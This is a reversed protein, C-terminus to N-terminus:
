AKRSESLESACGCFRLRGFFIRRLIAEDYKNVTVSFFAPRRGWGVPFFRLQTAKERECDTGGSMEQGKRGKAYPKKGKKKKKKDKMKRKNGEEKTERNKKKKM